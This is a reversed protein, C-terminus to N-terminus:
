ASLTQTYTKGNIKINELQLNEVHHLFWPTNECRVTGFDCNRISVNRIPLITPKTDGNYSTAVPGLLVFAQYASFNGGEINVTGLTINSIHIDSIVPPRTRVSDDAPAYDCDITIVAGASSSVTHAPIQSDPLPKYFGPLTKVGNPITVNRVYFHRLFGGRNMNTKMRIATNLPDQNWHTNRFELNQAYVHEIGAAMESGLTVAGHGSNMVCAQIVINRTPGFQIDRNKGSKIAICDDGTNFTCQDILVTDCAEPDFGDSNPGMSDMSVKSIRVNRCKVPHHIWFPAGQIKYGTLEVNTCGILEIMCPRLYHGVGFVRASTPLGLESLVPLFRSDTRWKNGAGQILQKAESTITPALQDLTEPNNQNVSVESHATPKKPDKRGKWDWWTGSGDEFLTGGQGDLISSWDEGTIAINNEGFAYIMPSYNLCDNGQWRSIVLKGNKGCDIDGYKAYDAPNASFFVHANAALHFHVNSRLRIPGACYWNGAPVLVRGGGAEHCAQIARKIAEYCDHAGPKPTSVKGKIVGETDSAIQANITMLECKKAGYRTIAFDRKAFKLPTSFQKIIDDARQWPDTESTTTPAALTLSPMGLISAASTIRLLSRRKFDITHTM